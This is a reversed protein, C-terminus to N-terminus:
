SSVRPPPPLGSAPPAGMDPVPARLRPARLVPWPHTLLVRPGEAAAQLGGGPNGQQGTCTPPWQRVLAGGEPQARRPAGSWAGPRPLPHLAWPGCPRGPCPVGPDPCQSVRPPHPGKNSMGLARRPGATPHPHAAQPGDEAGPGAPLGEGGVGQGPSCKPLFLALLGRPGWGQTHPQHDAAQEPVASRLGPTRPAGLGPSTLPGAAPSAPPPVATERTPSTRQCRLPTTPLQCSHM